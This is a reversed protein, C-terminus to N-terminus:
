AALAAAVERYDVFRPLILGFVVFLVLPIVSARLIASGRGPMARGAAPPEELVITTAGDPVLALEADARMEVRSHRRHASRRWRLPHPVRPLPEFTVGRSRKGVAPGAPGISRNARRMRWVTDLAASHTAGGSPHCTSCRSSTM